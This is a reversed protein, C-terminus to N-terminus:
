PPAPRRPTPPPRHDRLLKPLRPLRPEPPRPPALGNAPALNPTLPVTARDGAARSRVPAGSADVFASDPYLEFATRTTPLINNAITDHAANVAVPTAFRTDLGGFDAVISVPPSAFAIAPSTPFRFENGVISNGSFDISKPLSQGNVAGAYSLSVMSRSAIVLNGTVKVNRWSTGWYSTIGGYLANSITNGSIVLDAVPGVTEIGADFVNQMSNDRVSDASEGYLLIGDDTGKRGYNAIEGDWAGNIQNREVVNDHGFELWIGAAGLGAAPDFTMVNDGVTVHSSQSVSVGRGGGILHNGTFRANTLSEFYVGGDYKSPGTVFNCNTVAIDDGYVALFDIRRAMVTSNEVRVHNARLLYVATWDSDQNVLRCNSVSVSDSGDVWVAAASAIISHGQCNLGVGTTSIHICPTNFVATQLDSALTYNGRATITTCANLTFQPPQCDVAIDVTRQEGVGLGAYPVVPKTCDAPLGTVSLTGSGPGAPVGTFAYRGVSDTVVPSLAGAGTPTVSVTVGVMGQGSSNTVTGSIAGEARCPLVVAVKAVAGSDPWAYGANMESCNFPAGRIEVVGRAAVGSVGAVAFTGSDTTAVPNYAPGSDPAVTVTLGGLPKGTLSNSVTGVVSGTAPRCRAAIDVIQTGDYLFGTVAVSTDSCLAPLVGVTLTGHGSGVLFNEFRYSGDARTTTGSEWSVGVISFAVGAGAIPGGQSSSVTGYVM